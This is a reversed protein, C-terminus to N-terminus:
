EDDSEDDSDVSADRISPDSTSSIKGKATGKGQTGAKTTKNTIAPKDDSDDSSEDSEDSDSEIDVQQPGSQVPAKSALKAFYEEEDDDDSDDDESEEDDDDEVEFALPKQGQKVRSLPTQTPKEYSGHIKAIDARLESLTRSYPGPPPPAKAPASSKPEAKKASALTPAPTSSKKSAAPAPTAAKTSKTNGSGPTASPTAKKATSAAAAPPSSKNSSAQGPTTGKLPKESRAAPTTPPVAKKAAKAPAKDGKSQTSVTKTASTLANTKKATSSPTKATAGTALPKTHMTSDKNSTSSSTTDFSERRASSSKGSSSTDRLPTSVTERGSASSTSTEPAPRKLSSAKTDERAPFSTRIPAKDAPTLGKKKAVAEQKKKESQQKKYEQQHQKKHAAYEEQTMNKRSELIKIEEETLGVGVSPSKRSEAERNVRLAGQGPRTTDKEASTAPAASGWYPLPKSKEPSTAGTSAARQVVVDPPSIRATSSASQTKNSVKGDPATQKSSPAAPTKLTPKKFSAARMEDGVPTFQPQQQAGVLKKDL